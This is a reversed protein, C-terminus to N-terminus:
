RSQLYIKDEKSSTAETLGSTSLVGPDIEDEHPELLLRIRLIDYEVRSGSARWRCDWCVSGQTVLYSVKSDGGEPSANAPTDDSKLQVEEFRKHIMTSLKSSTLSHPTYNSSLGSM